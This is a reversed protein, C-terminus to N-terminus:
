VTKSNKWYYVFVAKVFPSQKFVFFYIASGFKQVTTYTICILSFYFFFFFIHFNFSHIECLIQVLFLYFKFACFALNVMLAALLNAFSLTTVDTTVLWYRFGWFSMLICPQLHLIYRALSVIIERYNGRQSTIVGCVLTLMPNYLLTSPSLCKIFCANLKIM